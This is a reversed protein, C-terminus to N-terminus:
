YIWQSPTFIINGSGNAPEFEGIGSASQFVWYGAVATDEFDDTSDYIVGYSPDYYSITGEADTYQAIFHVGFASESPTPSKQGPLGSGRQLDGYGNPCAPVSGLEDSV